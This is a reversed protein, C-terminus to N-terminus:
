VGEHGPVYCLGQNHVQCRTLERYAGIAQVEFAHPDAKYDLRDMRSFAQTKRHSASLAMHKHLVIRAQVYSPFAVCQLIANKTGKVNMILVNYLLADLRRSAEPLDM